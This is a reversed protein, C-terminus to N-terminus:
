APRLIKGTAVDRIESAGGASGLKGPVIYDVLEGFQRRLQHVNHVPQRGSVNASTSVLASDTAECLARAVPHKTQRVAISEHRGRIWYPAEDTAPVIWTVPKDASSDLTAGEPVEIWDELQEIDSVILVLGMDADRNKIELIRAVAAADEPICGLGYVGETPYAIVGGDLLIRAAKKIHQSTAMNWPRAILGQEIQHGEEEFSKEEFDEKESEEKRDEEQGNEQGDKEECGEEQGPTGASGGATGQV